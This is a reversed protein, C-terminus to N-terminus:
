AALADQLAEAGALIARAHALVRRGADTLEVRGPGPTRELLRCGCARELAAVQQSVAPRTYGLHTAAAQFSGNEAVAVFAAVHRLELGRLNEQNRAV